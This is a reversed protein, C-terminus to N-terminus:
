FQAAPNIKLPKVTKQIFLQQIFSLVIVQLYILM